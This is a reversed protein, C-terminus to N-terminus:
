NPNCLHQTHQMFPLYPLINWQLTINWKMCDVFHKIKRAQFKCSSSIKPFLLFCFLIASQTHSFAQGSTYLRSAESQCSAPWQESISMQFAFQTITGGLWFTTLWRTRWCHSPQQRMQAGGLGHFCGAAPWLPAPPFLCPPACSRWGHRQSLILNLILSHPPVCAALTRIISVYGTLPCYGATEDTQSM